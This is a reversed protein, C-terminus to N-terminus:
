FFVISTNKDTIGELDNTGFTIGVFFVANGSIPLSPAPFFKRTLTSSLINNSVMFINYSYRRKLSLYTNLIGMFVLHVSKQYIYTYIYM